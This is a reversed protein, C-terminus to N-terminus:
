NEEELKTPEEDSKDGVLKSDIKLSCGCASCFNDHPAIYNDCSPCLNEVRKITHNVENEYNFDITYIAFKRGNVGDIVIAKREGLMALNDQEEIDNTFLKSCSHATTFLILISPLSYVSEFLKSPKQATLIISIGRSRFSELFDSLVEELFYQSIFKDDNSFKTAPKKGIEGIEDLMIINKLKNMRIQPFFIRIMQFMLNILLKKIFENCTSESLDIFVNKGNMWEIFWFPKISPQRTIKDLIPSSTWRIARNKIANIINTQYKKHYPNKEFWNLMKGFLKELSDPVDQNKEFYKIMANYMVIDVPQKLGLSSSLLKALQEFTVEINEGKFYYPVRFDPDGYSLKIDLNYPIDEEKKRLSIILVGCNPAVRSIEHQIHNLFTTKGSGSLGSIFAHHVLDDISLTIKKNTIVGRSIYYGLFIDNQNTRKLFSVNENRVKIAKDLLFYEPINFDIVKPNVFGPIKDELIKDKIGSYFRGTDLGPANIWFVRGNLIREWTNNPVQKLTAREGDINQIGSTLYELHGKLEAKQVIIDLEDEFKPIVSIYIKIKFNEDLKYEKELETGEIEGIISDDKQWLIYIKIVHKQNFTFLNIIKRFLNIKNNFIPQPLILEFILKQKNLYKFDIPKVKVDGSLGPYVEKLYDLFHFGKQIAEEKSRVKLFFKWSFYDDEITFKTGYVRGDVFPNCLWSSEDENENKM